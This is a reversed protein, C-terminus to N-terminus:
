ELRNEATAERSSSCTALPHPEGTLTALATAVEPIGARVYTAMARGGRGHDEHGAYAQAVAFGFNREVWTLITHRIWHASVQQTAVWPLHQGLRTWLYDYRRSTIPRGNAYRLLRQGSSLGGRSEAHAILHSMLTPSVPQWRETSGKEHLKVLCNEPDLDEPMLALAGGRRCATEIHLRLLLTDLAPDDGTSGAVRALEDLRRDPLATRTSHLRRPKAVRAAPNQAEALIGDAVAYRYLCRLSAILHEAAGRGGRANRRQVVGAKVQEALQSIELPTVATIPRPGWVQLVRNWYTGYVRRTGASVAGSVRPIYDAFAPSSPAPDSARLLDAPRIGMKALLLRAAEIDAQGPQEIGTM